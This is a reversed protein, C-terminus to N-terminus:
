GAVPWAEATLPCGDLSLAIRVNTHVDDGARAVTVGPTGALWDIARWTVSVAVELWESLELPTIELTLLDWDLMLNVIGTVPAWALAWPQEAPARRVDVSFVHDVPDLAAVFRRATEVDCSAACALELLSTEFRDAHAAELLAELKDAAAVSHPSRFERVVTATLGENM